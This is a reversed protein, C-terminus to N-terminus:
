WITTLLQSTGDWSSKIAFYLIGKLM